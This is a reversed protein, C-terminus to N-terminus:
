SALDLLLRTMITKYDVHIYYYFKTRKQILNKKKDVEKILNKYQNDPTRDEYNSYNNMGFGGM